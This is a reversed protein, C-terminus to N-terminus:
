LGPPLRAWKAMPLSSWSAFEACDWLGTRQANDKPVMIGLHYKEGVQKSALTVLDSGTAPM